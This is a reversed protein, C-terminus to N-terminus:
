WGRKWHLWPWQQDQHHHQLLFNLSYQHDPRMHSLSMRPPNPGIQYPCLKQLHCWKGLCLHLLQIFQRSSTSSSPLLKRYGWCLCGRSQHSLQFPDAVAAMGHPPMVMLTNLCLPITSKCFVVVGKLYMPQCDSQDVAECQKPWWSGFKCWISLSWPGHGPLSEPITVSVIGHGSNSNRHFPIVLAMTPRWPSCELLAKLHELTDELTPNFDSQGHHKLNPAVSFCYSDMQPLHMVLQGNSAIQTFWAGVHRHLTDQLMVWSTLDLVCFFMCFLFSMSCFLWVPLLQLHSLLSFSGLTLELVMSSDQLSFIGSVDWGIRSIFTPQNVESIKRLWESETNLTPKWEVTCVTM